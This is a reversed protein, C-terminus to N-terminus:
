PRDDDGRALGDRVARLISSANWRRLPSWGAFPSMVPRLVEVPLGQEPPGSPRSWERLKGVARGLDARSLTPTRTGVTNVWLVRNRPALRRFLHQCSSPHRGWDDAFVVFSRDTIM